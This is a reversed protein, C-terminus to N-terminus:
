KKQLGFNADYTFTVVGKETEFSGRWQGSEQELVLVPISQEFARWTQRVDDVARRHRTPVEPTGQLHRMAIKTESLSWWRWSEESESAYWPVLKGSVTRAIRVVHQPEGLRTPMRTDSDWAKGPAYGADVQHLNNHAIARQSQMEGIAKLTAKQLVDPIDDTNVDYVKRIVQRVDEPVRLVPQARLERLTRWLINVHYVASTWDLLDRSPWHETEADHESPAVVHLAYRAGSPREGRWKHRWLRGARQLLLDIPALDSIMFDFDLDLSQEVVQTALLVKGRRMEDTSEVGSWWVVEQERQQRDGQAFRSHFVEVDVGQTQLERAAQICANVTNRIWVVCAGARAAGAVLRMADAMSHVFQVPLP